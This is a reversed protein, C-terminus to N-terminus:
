EELKHRINRYNSDLEAVKKFFVKSRDPQRMKEFTEGLAYYIQIKELETKGTDSSLRKLISAAGAYDRRSLKSNAALYYADFAYDPFESVLRIFISEAQRFLGMEHLGVGFDLITRPDSDQFIEGIREEVISGLEDSGASDTQALDFEQELRDLVDSTDVKGPRDSSITNYLAEPFELKRIERLKAKVIEEDAGIHQAHRLAKRALYYNRKAIYREARRMLMEVNLTKNAKEKLEEKIEQILHETHDAAAPQSFIRTPGELLDTGLDLEEGEAGTKTIAESPIPMFVPSESGTPPAFSEAVSPEQAPEPLPEPKAEAVPVVPEAPPLEAPAEMIPAAALTDAPIVAAGMPMLVTADNTPVASSSSAEAPAAEPAPAAVPIAVTKDGSEQLVEARVAALAEAASSIALTADPPTAIQVASAEMHSSEPVVDCQPSFVSTLALTPDSTPPPAPPTAAAAPPPPVVAPKEPQKEPELPVEIERTPVQALEKNRMVNAVDLLEIPSFMETRTSEAPPMKISPDTVEAQQLPNFHGMTSTPAHTAVPTPSSAPAAAQPMPISPPTTEVTLGGPISPEEVVPAAAPPAAPPPTAATPAPAEEKKATKAMDSIMQGSFLVIEDPAAAPPAGLEIEAPPAIEFTAKSKDGAVGSPGNGTAAQETKETKAPAKGTIAALFTPGDMIDGSEEAFKIWGNKEVFAELLRTLTMLDASKDGPMKDKFYRYVFMSENLKKEEALVRAFLLAALGFDPERRFCEQLYHYFAKKEERRYAVWALSYAIRSDRPFYPLLNKLAEYLAPTLATPEGGVQFEQSVLGPPGCLAVLLHILKQDAQCQQLVEIWIMKLKDNRPQARVMFPMLSAADFFKKRQLYYDLAVQGQLYADALKGASECELAFRVRMGIDHPVIDLAQKYIAIALLSKGADSLKKALSDFVKAAEEPRGEEVYTNALKTATLQNLPELKLAEKLKDIAEPVKGKDLLKDAESVLKQVSM